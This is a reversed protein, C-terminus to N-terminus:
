QRYCYLLEIHYNKLQQEWEDSLKMDTLITTVEHFGLMKVFSLRDFKAHDAILITKRAAAVMQKKVEAEMENSEMIGKELDLGKCSLIAKNVHYTDLAKEAWHGVFSLSDNKLIGGTSIVKCDKANSLELAIHISNTIVTIDKKQKLHAAVQLATSSSDLMITDGNEVFDAARAGLARKSEINTVQRITFPLDATTSETLVAGGYTRKLFGEKELKELDRRVTEETVDFLKSLEPVMVSKNEQLLSMIEKRREIALM